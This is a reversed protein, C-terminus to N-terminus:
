TSAQNVQLIESLWTIGMSSSNVAKPYVKSIGQKNNELFHQAESETLFSPSSALIFTTSDNDGESEHLSAIKAIFKGKNTRVIFAIM